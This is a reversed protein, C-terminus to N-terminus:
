RANWRQKPDYKLCNEVVMRLFNAEQKQYYKSKVLYDLIYFVEKVINGEENCKIEKHIEELQNDDPKFDQKGILKILCIGFSWIDIAVTYHKYCKCFVTEGKSKPCKCSEITAVMEPAMYYATGGQTGPVNGEKSM